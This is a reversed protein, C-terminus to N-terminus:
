RTKILRDAITDFSGEGKVYRATTDGWLKAIAKADEFTRIKSTWCICERVDDSYRIRHTAHYSSNQAEYDIDELIYIKWGSLLGLKCFGFEIYMSGDSTRYDLCEYRM